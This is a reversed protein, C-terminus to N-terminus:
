PRSGAAFQEVLLIKQQIPNTGVHQSGSNYPEDPLLDFYHINHQGTGASRFGSRTGTGVPLGPVVGVVLALRQGTQLGLVRRPLNLAVGADTDVM